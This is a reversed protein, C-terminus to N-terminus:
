TEDLLWQAIKLMFWWESEPDNLVDFYDTGDVMSGEEYEPHPSTLFVKGEGTEFAIMCFYSTNHYSAIPIIDSMGAIDFYGSQEYLISYTSSEGSLNPEISDKNIDVETLYYGAGFVDPSLEGNFLGTRFNTAYTAGGDIGFYAGGNLVYQSVLNMEYEGDITCREDAWIGGPMVLLDTSDLIGNLLDTKNITTVQAGMWEFMHEAAVKSQIQVGNDYFISVQVNALPKPSSLYFVFSSLSIIAILGLAILTYKRKMYFRSM